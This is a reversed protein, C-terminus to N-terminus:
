YVIEYTFFNCVSFLIFLEGVENKKLSNQEGLKRGEREIGLNLFHLYQVTENKRFM